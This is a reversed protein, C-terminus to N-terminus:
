TKAAVVNRQLARTQHYLHSVHIARLGLSEASNVGYSVDSGQIGDSWPQAVPLLARRLLLRVKGHADRKTVQWHNIIINKKSLTDHVM